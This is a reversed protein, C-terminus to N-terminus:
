GTTWTPGFTIEILAPDDLSTRLYWRGESPRYIGISDSGSGTWDGVVPIDGSQIGLQLTTFTTGANLNNNLHWHGGRRYIGVTDFGDGNWDGVVGVDGPQLGYDFPEFTEDGIARRLTWTGTRGDYFGIGTGRGPGGWAGVVPIIPPAQQLCPRNHDRTNNDTRVATSSCSPDLTWPRACTVVRCEIPGICAIDNSCNGYRFHTCGAKRHDCRSNGCGCPTGNCTGSCVGSSGCSCTGCPKHCDLYYRAAGGCFTSGDAKWWGGIVSGEPCANVGNLACCFETYGDCCASGCGCATGSCNCIAAYASGPRLLYSAPAAALATGAMASRTLFSRRDLRHAVVSTARSLVSRTAM